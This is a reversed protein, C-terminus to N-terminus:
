RSSSRHGNGITSYRRGNGVDEPDATNGCVEVRVILHGPHRRQQVVHPM